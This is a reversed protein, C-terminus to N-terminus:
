RVTEIFAKIRSEAAKPDIRHMREQLIKTLEPLWDLFALLFEIQIDFKAIFNAKVFPMSAGQPPAYIPAINLATNTGQNILFFNSGDFYWVLKETTNPIINIVVGKQLQTTPVSGIPYTTQQPYHVPYTPYNNLAVTEIPILRDLGGADVILDIVEGINRDLVSKLSNKWATYEKVTKLIPDM